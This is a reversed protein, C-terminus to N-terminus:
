GTMITILWSPANAARGGSGWYTASAAPVTNGASIDLHVGVNGM